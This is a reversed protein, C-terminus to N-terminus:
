EQGDEVQSEQGNEGSPQEEGDSPPAPPVDYPCVFPAQEGEGIGSRVPGSPPMIQVTATAEGKSKDGVLAFSMKGAEANSPVTYSVDGGLVSGQGDSMFCAVQNGVSDHTRGVYVRVIESRAFGGGYFTFSTGPQGGYTSPEAYPSYPLVDFGTTVASQTMEGIFILLNKGNLEFPIVFGGADSFNGEDDAQIVAVPSHSMSNLYVLVREGPGFDKGTFSLTTDAKAAYESLTATPYYTLMLFNMTVPAQSKEGVFILSNDGPPGFPVTISARNINGSGDAELTAFPTSALSNFYVMVKEKAAFGKGSVTVQNGAKGVQTGLKISTSNGTIRGQATAKKGGDHERAIVNFSETNVDEPIQFSVGSFSGGEDVQAYGINEPKEGEKTELFVDVTDGPTFGVGSVGVNSGRMGSAPNLLVIAGPKTALQDPSLPTLEIPSSEPPTPNAQKPEAETKEPADRPVSTEIQSPVQVDTVLQEPESGSFANSVLFFGAIILVGILIANNRTLKM